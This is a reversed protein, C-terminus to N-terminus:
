AGREGGTSPIDPHRHAHPRRQRKKRLPGIEFEDIINARMIFNRDRYTGDDDVEGAITVGLENSKLIVGISTCRKPRHFSEIEELTAEATNSRADDWVVASVVPIGM